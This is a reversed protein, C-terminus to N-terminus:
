PKRDPDPAPSGSASSAPAPAEAPGFPHSAEGLEFFSTRGGEAMLLYRKDILPYDIV